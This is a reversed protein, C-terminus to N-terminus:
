ERRPELLRAVQMTLTSGGSIVRGNHVLQWAARVLARPDVGHHQFFRRDEYAILAAIYRPDVNEVTAPLRWRGDGTAYPRLVQGDRDVVVTSFELDAGTPAPGLFIIWATAFAALVVATLGAGALAKRLGHWRTGEGAQPPPVPLSSLPLSAARERGRHRRHRPPRLPRAPVHGRYVGAAPRVPRAFGRARRLGGHVGGQRRGQPRLRRHLPR